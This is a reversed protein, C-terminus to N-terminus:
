EPKGFQRDRHDRVAKILRNCGNWDLDVWLSPVDGDEDDTQLRNGSEQDFRIVGLAVGLGALGHSRVLIGNPYYSKIRFPTHEEYLGDGNVKKPYTDQVPERFSEGHRDGYIISENSGM